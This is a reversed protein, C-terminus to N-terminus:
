ISKTEDDNEAPKRTAEAYKKEKQAM